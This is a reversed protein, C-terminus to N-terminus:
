QPGPGSPMLASVGEEPAPSTGSGCDEGQWYPHM